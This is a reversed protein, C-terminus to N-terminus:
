PSRRPNDLPIRVAPTAGVHDDPVPEGGRLIGAALVATMAQELEARDPLLSWADHSDDTSGGTGAAGLARERAIRETTSPHSDYPTAPQAPAEQVFVAVAREIPPNSLRHRYLNLPPPQADLVDGVAAGLHSDFRVAREVFHRLGEVFSGSGYVLAAWLDALVEQLRSAGQAIRLFM